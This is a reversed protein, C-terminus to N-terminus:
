QTQKKKLLQKFTWISAFNMLCNETVYNCCWFRNSHQWVAAYYYMNSVNFSDLEKLGNEVKKRLHKSTNGVIWQKDKNINQSKKLNKLNHNQKWHSLCNKFVSKLFYNKILPVTTEMSLNERFLTKQEM